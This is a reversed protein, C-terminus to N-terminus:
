EAKGTKENFHKITMKGNEVSAIPDGNKLVSKRGSLKDTQTKARNQIAKYEESDQWDSNIQKVTKGSAKERYYFDQYAKSSLLNNDKRVIWQSVGGSGQQMDVPNTTGEGPLYNKSAVGELENAHAMDKIFQGFAGRDENPIKTKAVAEALLNEDIAKGSKVANFIQIMAQNNKDNLANNLASGFRKNGTSINQLNSSENAVQGSRTNVLSQNEEHAKMEPNSLKSPTNPENGFTEVAAKTRGTTIATGPTTATVQIDDPLRQGTSPDVFWRDGRANSLIRIQKPQGNVVAEGIEPANIRGGTIQNYMEEKQGLLAAMFAKGWNPGYQAINSKVQDAAKIREEGDKAGTIAAASQQVAAAQDIHDQTIEPHHFEYQKAALNIQDQSQQQVGLAKDMKRGIYGKFDGVTMDNSLRNNKLTSENFYNSLPASDDARLLATGKPAGAFHLIYQNAPTSEIGHKELTRTNEQRLATQYQQQAEPNKQFEEWTVKPLNPNNKQVGEFTKKIFQYKGSATSNPNKAYADGGSELKAIGADTEQDTYAM